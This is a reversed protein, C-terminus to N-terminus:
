ERHEQAKRLHHTERDHILIQKNRMTKQASAQWGAPLASCSLSDVILVDADRCAASLVSSVKPSFIWVSHGICAFGMLLGFFPIARNASPVDVNQQLAWDTEGIVAVNRKTHSPLIKEVAAVAEPPGNQVAPLGLVRGDPRLIVLQGQAAKERVSAFVRELNAEVDSVADSFDPRLSLRIPLRHEVLLKMLEIAVPPEQKAADERHYWVMLKTGTNERIVKELEPLSTRVGDRLLEGNALVTLKLIKAVAM